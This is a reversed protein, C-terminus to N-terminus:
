LTFFKHTALDYVKCGKQGFPYGFFVCHHAHVDFKNNLMFMM